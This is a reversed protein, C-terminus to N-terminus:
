DDRSPLPPSIATPTTPYSDERSPVPPLLEPDRPLPIPPNAESVTPAKQGEPTLIRNMINAFYEQNQVKHTKNYKSRLVDVINALKAAQEQSLLKLEKYDKAFQDVSAAVKKESTRAMVNIGIKSLIWELPQLKDGWTKKSKITMKHSLLKGEKVDKSLSEIFNDINEPKIKVHYTM